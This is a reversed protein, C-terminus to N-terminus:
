SVAGTIDDQITIRGTLLTYVITGATNSIQVDYEWAKDKDLDRGVSPTIRCTVIDNQNNIEAFADIRTIGSGAGRGDAIVMAANAFTELQFAEGNADKPRIIFELTDGKYYNFNYTGPFAM